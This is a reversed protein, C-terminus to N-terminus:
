KDELMKEAVAMKEVADKESVLPRRCSPCAPIDAAFTEDLYTLKVTAWELPKACKACLWDIREEKPQVPMNLGELIQMRHSYATFIRYGDEEMMYEVWYTTKETMSYALCRGDSGRTFFNGTQRSSALVQQVDQRRIGREKLTESVPADIKISIQECNEL